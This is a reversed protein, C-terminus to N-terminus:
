PKQIILAIIAKLRSLKPGIYLKFLYESCVCLFIRANSGSFFIKKFVIITSLCPLCGPAACCELFILLFSITDELLIVPDTGDEIIKFYIITFGIIYMPGLSLLSLAIIASIMWFGYSEGRVLPGHHYKGETMLELEPDTYM